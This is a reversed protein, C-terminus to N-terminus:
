AIMAFAQREIKLFESGLRGVPAYFPASQTRELDEFFRPGWPRLHTEFLHKQDALPLAHEGFVGLILGALIECVGAIHDEPESTQRARAIGLRAMDARLQALPWTYLAGTLYYSAYPVLEGVEVGVFLRYYEEELEAGSMNRAAASLAEIAKGFPTADGSLGKVIEVVEASPPAALLSALLIYTEARLKDEEGVVPIEAPNSM